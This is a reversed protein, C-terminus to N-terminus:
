GPADPEGRAGREGAKLPADGSIAGDVMRIHRAPAGDWAHDHTVILLTIGERNLNELIATM